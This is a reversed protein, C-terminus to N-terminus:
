TNEVGGRPKEKPYFFFMVAITLALFLGAPPKEKLAKVM